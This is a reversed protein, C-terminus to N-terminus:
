LLMCSIITAPAPCDQLGLFTSANYGKAHASFQDAAEKLKGRWLKIAMAPRRSRPAPTLQPAPAPTLAPAVAESRIAGWRERTDSGGAHPIHTKIVRPSLEAANPSLDQSRGNRRPSKSKVEDQRAQRGAQGGARRGVIPPVEDTIQMLSSWESSDTKNLTPEGGGRKQM